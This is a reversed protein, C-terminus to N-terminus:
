KCGHLESRKTTKSQSIKACIVFIIVGGGRDKQSLYRDCRYFKFYDINLNWFTQYDDTKLWTESFCYITNTRLDNVIKHMTTKKHSLERPFIEVKEVKSYLQLDLSQKWM